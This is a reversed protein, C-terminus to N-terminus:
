PLTVQSGTPTVVISGAPTVVVLGALSPFLAGGVMVGGSGALATLALLSLSVFAIVVALINIARMKM